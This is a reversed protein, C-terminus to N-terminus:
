RSFTFNSILFCNLHKGIKEMLTKSGILLFLNKNEKNAGNIKILGVSM